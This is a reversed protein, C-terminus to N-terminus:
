SKPLEMRSIANGTMTVAITRAWKETVTRVLTRLSRSENAKITSSSYMECEHLGGLLVEKSDAQLWRM